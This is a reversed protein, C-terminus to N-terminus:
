KQARYICCTRVFGLRTTYYQVMLRLDHEMAIQRLIDRARIAIEGNLVKKRYKPVWVLHVKLDTKTHDGIQYRRM